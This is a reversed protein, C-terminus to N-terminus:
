NSSNFELIKQSFYCFILNQEFFSVKIVQVLIRRTNEVSKFDCLSQM